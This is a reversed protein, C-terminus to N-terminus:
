RDSSQQQSPAARRASKDHQNTLHTLLNASIHASGPSAHAKPSNVSISITFQYDTASILSCPASPENEASGSEPNARRPKSMEGAAEVAGSARTGLATFGAMLAAVDGAPGATCAWASCVWASCVWESCVWETCGLTAPALNGSVRRSSRALSCASAAWDARTTCAGAGTRGTCTGGCVVMCDETCDETCAETCAAAIGAGAAWGCSAWGVRRLADDFDADFAFLGFTFAGRLGFDSRGTFGGRPV